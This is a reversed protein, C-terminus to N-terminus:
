RKLVKFMFIWLGERNVAQTKSLRHRVARVDFFYQTKNTFSCLELNYYNIICIIMMDEEFINPDLHHWFTARETELIDDQEKTTSQFVIKISGYFLIEDGLLDSKSITVFHIVRSFSTTEHTPTLLVSDLSDRQVVEVSSGPLM